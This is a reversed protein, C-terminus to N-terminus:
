VSIAARLARVNGVYDDTGFLASGAVLGTAGADVVRKITDAKIGGDVAIEIASGRKEIEQRLASIKDLMEPLFAQGGFGPNVTMVLVRDILHFVHELVRISTAPNIAVGVRVNALRIQQLVRHLHVCAEAHVYILSAGAAAYHEIWRDPNEIMLHVDLPLPTARRIAQVGQPGLTLNPVFHGDMIDVHIGDVGAHTISEVEKALCGFDASLVSALLSVARM